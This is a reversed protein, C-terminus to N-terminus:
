TFQKENKNISTSLIRMNNAHPFKKNSESNLDKGSELLLLIHLDIKHIKISKTLKVVLFRCKLLGQIVADKYLNPLIITVIQKDAWHLYYFFLEM